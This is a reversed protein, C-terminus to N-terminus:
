GLELETREGLGNVRHSLVHLGHRVVRLGNQAKRLGRRPVGRGPRGVAWFRNSSARALTYLFRAPFPPSGICALRHEQSEDCVMALQLAHAAGVARDLEAPVEIRM